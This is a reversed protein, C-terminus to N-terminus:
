TWSRQGHWSESLSGAAAADTRQWWSWSASRSGPRTAPPSLRELDTVTREVWDPDLPRERVARVIRSARTPESREDVNFLEERLKEGPRAGIIEIAVDRTPSM